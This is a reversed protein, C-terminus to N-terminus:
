PKSVFKNLIITVQQKEGLENLSLPPIRVERALILIRVQFSGTMDLCFKEKHVLNGVFKRREFYRMDAATAKVWKSSCTATLPEVYTGWQKCAATHLEPVIM